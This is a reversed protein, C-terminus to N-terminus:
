FLPYFTSEVDKIDVLGYYRSDYSDIHPALAFFKGDPIIGDYVFNNVAVGKKSLSKARALYKDDCYYEKQVADSTLHQGASCEVYKLMYIIKNDTFSDRHPYRVITGNKIDKNLPRLVFFRDKMSDSPSFTLFHPLILGIGACAFIFMAKRVNKNKLM